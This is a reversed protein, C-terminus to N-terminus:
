RCGGAIEQYLEFGLAYRRTSSGILLADIRGTKPRTTMPLDLESVAYDKMLKLRAGPTGDDDRWVLICAGPANRDEANPRDDEDPWLARPFAPDVVLSDAFLMKLNGGIHMGDAVITGRSFGAARLGEALEAFPAFERCRSCDNVGVGYRYLRAGAAVAVLIAVIAIFAGIRRNSPNTREARAFLFIPLSMLAPHLWRETFNTAGFLPILLVHLGLVILILCGFFAPNLAPQADDTCRSIGARLNPGFLALFIVLFPLPFLLTSRLLATAGELWLAIQGAASDKTLIDSSVGQISQGHDFMWFATPALIAVMVTISAFIKKTLVLHRFDPLALCTLPLGIALMAFNWKALMGLGFVLGMSLYAIWTPNKVLRATVYLALAIMAGLATTHTLDHHAYYAFVYILTFSLVALGAMRQDSLCLRATLYIFVYTIALLTYRVLSIALLSPGLLDIVPVLMWTFLPPQRFRYGFAWHQAFLIQEADDIGFTPSLLLRLTFHGFLYLGILGLVVSPSTLWKFGPAAIANSPEDAADTTSQWSLTDPRM